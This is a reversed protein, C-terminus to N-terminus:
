GGRYLVMGHRQILRSVWRDILRLSSRDSERVFRDGERMMARIATPATYLITVNHKDVIHGTRAWTPYQPVGEFMLTPRVMPYLGMCFM